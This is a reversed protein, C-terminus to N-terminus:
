RRELKSRLDEYLAHTEKVFNRGIRAAQELAEEDSGSAETLRRELDVWQQEALEFGDKAEMTALQLQVRLEDRIARLRDCEAELGRWALDGPAEEARGADAFSGTTAEPDVLAAVFDRETLVGVVVDNELVPLCSIKQRNMERAADALLTDPTTTRVRRSMVERVDIRALLSRETADDIGCAKFLAGCAVDRDSVIGELKGNENAVPLHRIRGLRMVDSAITLDDSVTLMAPRRTMLEHVYRIPTKM